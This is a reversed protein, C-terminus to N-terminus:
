YFMMGLVHQGKHFVSVAHPGDVGPKFKIQYFNSGLDRVEVDDSRGSPDMVKATIDMPSTDEMQLFLFADQGPMVM